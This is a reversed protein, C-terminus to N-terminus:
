YPFLRFLKGLNCVVPLVLADINNSKNSQNDGNSRSASFDAAALCQVYLQMAEQYRGNTFYKNAEEKTSSAWVIKEEPSLQALLHATEAIKTKTSLVNLDSATADELNDNTQNKRKIQVNLNGDSLADTFVQLSNM